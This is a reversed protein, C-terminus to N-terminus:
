MALVVVQRSRGAVVDMWGLLFLIKVGASPMPYGLTRRPQRRGKITQKTTRRSMLISEETGTTVNAATQPEGRSNAYVRQWHAAEQATLTIPLPYRVQSGCLEARPGRSDKAAGPERLMLVLVLPRMAGSGRTRKAARLWCFGLTIEGSM